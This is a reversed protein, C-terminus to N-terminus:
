RPIARVCIFSPRNVVDEYGEPDARNYEETPQAELIREILYKTQYLTETVYQLPRRYSPVLVREGFGTWTNEMMEVEFYNIPIDKVYYFSPHGDSFVLAGDKKLVRHFEQFVPIWDKIYGMVLSSYVLDLSDTEIFNLPDRLDHLRFEAGRGVRRKAHNLMKPHADVAIVEAGKEVLWRTHSGTGCGRM